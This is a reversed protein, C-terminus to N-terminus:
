WPSWDPESGDALLLSPGSEVWLLFVKGDADYVLQRGDPSWDLGGGTGASTVARTFLPQGREDLIHITDRQYLALRQGDPSWAVTGYGDLKIANPDDLRGIRLEGAIGGGAFTWAFIGDRRVDFTNVMGSKAASGGCLPVAYVPHMSIPGLAVHVFLTCGDASWRVNGMGAMYEAMIAQHVPPLVVRRNGGDVNMVEVQRGDALGSGLSHIFAIQRGDPSWRPSSNVGDTTLQREDTGDLKITWV